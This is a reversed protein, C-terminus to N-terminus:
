KKKGASETQSRILRLLVFTRLESDLGEFTESKSFAANSDDIGGVLTLLLESLEDM